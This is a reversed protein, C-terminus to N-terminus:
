PMQEIGLDTGAIISRCLLSWRAKPVCCKGKLRRRMPRACSRRSWLKLTAPAHTLRGAIVVHVKLNYTCLLPTAMSRGVDNIHQVLVTGFFDERGLERGSPLSYTCGVHTKTGGGKLTLSAFLVLSIPPVPRVMVFLGRRLGDKFAPSYCMMNEGHLYEVGTCDCRRTSTPVGPRLPLYLYNHDKASAVEEPTLLHWAGPPPRKVATWSASWEFEGAEFFKKQSMLILAM